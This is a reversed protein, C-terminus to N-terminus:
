ERVVTTKNDGEDPVRGPMWGVTFAAVGFLISSYLLAHRYDNVRSFIGFYITGGAAALRGINYCFGAGTTRLLVPFLPPLWMTFLAFVGQWVGILIFWGYNAELSWDSCFAAVLTAGYALLMGFVAQRYGMARALGGALFNGVVSGLMLWTVGIVVVHNQGGVTLSRVEPLSRLHAQQWFMFTWHGTLGLACLLLSPWTVRAVPTRFLDWFSPVQSGPYSPSGPLPNATRNRLRAAQWEETEPVSRRIWLVLAAPLIGVVFLWNPAQEAMLYGAFCALLVGVNVASQLAAAIWPRWSKPWSESLLSAGVAWEGGIGLASIFRFVLLHWWQTSVASLGTFAAYTLITLCLTRSRGIRDGIRGFILGGLAWGALFGASIYAGHLAVSPDSSPAKLLLAVFPTAVLTYLHMDLGDFMWGLWAALGSRRQESTLARWVRVPLFQSMTPYPPSGLSPTPLLRSCLFVRLIRLQM